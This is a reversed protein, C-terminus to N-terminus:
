EMSKLKKELDSLERSKTETSDKIKAILNVLKSDLIGVNLNQFVFDDTAKLRQLIIKFGEIVSEDNPEKTNQLLKTIIRNLAVADKALWYYKAGKQEEYYRMFEARLEGFLATKKKSDPVTVPTDFLKESHNENLFQDIDKAIAKLRKSIATLFERDKM